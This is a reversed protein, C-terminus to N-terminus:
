FDTAPLAQFDWVIAAINGEKVEMVILGRRLFQDVDYIDAEFGASCEVLDKVKSLCGAESYFAFGQRELKDRAALREDGIKVGFKEGNVINGYFTTDTGVPIPNPTRSCAAVPALALLGCVAAFQHLSPRRPANSKPTRM